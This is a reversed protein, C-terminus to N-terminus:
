PDSALKVVVQIAIRSVLLKILLMPYSNNKGKNRYTHVVDFM